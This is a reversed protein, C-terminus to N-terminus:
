LGHVVPLNMLVRAELSGKLAGLLIDGKGYPLPDDSEIQVLRVEYGHKESAYRLRDLEVIRKAHRQHNQQETPTQPGLGVDAIKALISYKGEMSIADLHKCYEDDLAGKIQSEKQMLMKRLWASRPYEIDSTAGSRWFSASEDYMSVAQVEQGQNEEQKESKRRTLAKATCCPCVVFPANCAFALNMAMDSAAGCAHLSVIVIKHRNINNNNCKFIFSAIKNVNALDACHTQISTPPLFANARNQLRQLAQDNVDVALVDVNHTNGMCASQVSPGFPNSYLLGALGIALNGAGCGADVITVREVTNTKIAHRNDGNGGCNHQPTPLMGNLLQSIIYFFAEVQARKRTARAMVKYLAKDGRSSIKGGQMPDVYPSLQDWRITHNPPVLLTPTRMTTNSLDSIQRQYNRAPQQITISEDILYENPSATLSSSAAIWNLLHETRERRRATRRQWRSTSAVVDNQDDKTEDVTKGPITAEVKTPTIYQRPSCLGVSVFSGVVQCRRHYKNGFRARQQSAFRRCANDTSWCEGFHNSNKAAVLLVCHPFLTKMTEICFKQRCDSNM